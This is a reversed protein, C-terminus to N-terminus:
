VLNGIQLKTVWFIPLPRSLNIKTPSIARLAAEGVFILSKVVSGIALRSEM